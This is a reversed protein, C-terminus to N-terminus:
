LYVQSAGIPFIATKVAPYLHTRTLLPRGSGAKDLLRGLAPKDNDIVVANWFIRASTSDM